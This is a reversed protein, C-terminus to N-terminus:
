KKRTRSDGIRSRFGYIAVLVSTIGLVTMSADSHFLENVTTQEAGEFFTNKNFNVVGLLVWYAGIWILTCAIAAVVKFAKDGLWLSVTRAPYSTYPPGISKRKSM